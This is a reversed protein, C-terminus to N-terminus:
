AKAEAVFPAKRILGDDALAAVMAEALDARSIHGGAPRDFTFRWRGTAPGDTLQPPRLFTFPLNSAALVAYEAQREPLMQGGMVRMVLRLAKDGLSKRDGPVDVAAGGVLVYRLGARGQALITRTAPLCVAHFPTSGLCGLVADADHLASALADPDSPLGIVSEGAWGAPASRGFAVAGHGERTLAELVLRGTRGSAGLVLVRM